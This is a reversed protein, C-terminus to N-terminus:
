NIRKGNQTVIMGRKALEKFFVMPPVVAEPAFVGETFIEETYLLQAIISISMGTDINCGADEWGKLTSVACEMLIKRRTTEEKGSVEVWLHEKETYGKPVPLRKLVESMFDLPIIKQGNVMIEKKSGFGLDILMKIVEFSHEPFGAYFRVNKVGKHQFYKHFTYTESHRVILQKQSGIAHHDRNRVTDLPVKDIFKGAEVVPAIETFEEVISEMSFPIVFKKINSNWLFGVEITEISDLQQAAHSLMVNGIGPVSGCGTIATLGQKKFKADMALQLKTNPIDSGLDLYNMDAALAAKMAPINWNLEACNLVISSKAHKLTQVTKTFNSLDVFAFQAHKPFKKLLPMVRAKNRGCLLVSYGRELLDRSAIRGQQGTAGLVVFDCRM